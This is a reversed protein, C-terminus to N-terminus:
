FSRNVIQQSTVSQTSHHHHPARHSHSSSGGISSDIAVACAKYNPQRSHPDFSPHTLQNVEPYHMPIFVQGRQMTPALYVTVKMAGRRSRVIIMEGQALSLEAADDPHMEVYASAPCLKRLIASKATRSQTHWQSSTGRGTLLLFPYANDVPEPMPSPPSVMLKAKGNPTYFLGDEFLRRERQTATTDHPFPWQIGGQSDLHAYDRIGTIDCPRGRTM